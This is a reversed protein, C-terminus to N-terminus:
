KVAWWSDIQVGWFSHKKPHAIKKWYAIWQGKEHFLPVVYHGSILLRDLMHVASVFNERSTESVLSDIAADIAKSEVGAFNYSGPQHAVKSGWRFSQENGPSLSAYWIMQLMDFDYGKKRQQYQASDVMRVSAMVGIRKLSRAYSQFLKVQDKNAALMELTLAQGTGKHLLRGSKLQYGAKKLLRLAKVRGARDRGSGNTQHFKFSGNMIDVPLSKPFKKLFAKEYANAPKGYSSLESRDFYSVTRSYLNHYLAKNLWNFDFMMSLAQRVRIDKFQAKRSNFVLGKMGSPIKMAVTETAVDGKKAASFGYERAWRGPDSEYRFDIIGKKFALFENNIDRFIEYRVVDFNFRGVNVALNKGWYDKNKQLVLSKGGKVQTIIYPGSGVPPVLSTKEFDVKEYYHKPLVPMLGMILPMERDGKDFTFKVTRAGIREIKTVKGYYHRHNPRGKEKLLKQSFIVDEVTLPHGDSFKAEKRITFSVWSRDEPTEVSEAILGYLSFAEDYSRAMLSEYVNTRLGPAPNGKVILPNLSDFTRMYSLTIKGGKPADAKVYDFHQFNAKYKLNGHMAIGHESGAFSTSTAMIFISIVSVIYSHPFLFTMGKTM